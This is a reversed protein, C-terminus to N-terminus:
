GDVAIEELTRAILDELLEVDRVTLHPIKGKAKTPIGLLKNRAATVQSIFGVKVQDANVLKGSREEYDLRATKAKYAATVLNYDNITPKKGPAGGIAAATGVPDPMDDDDGHPPSPPPSPPPAEGRRQAWSRRGADAMTAKDRVQNEDRSGKWHAAARAPDKITPWKKGGATLREGVCDAPIKGDAIARRVTEVSVDQRKAFERLSIGDGM